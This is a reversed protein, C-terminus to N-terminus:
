VWLLWFASQFEVELAMSYTGGREGVGQQDCLPPVFSGECAPQYCYNKISLTQEIGISSGLLVDQIAPQGYRDKIACLIALDL